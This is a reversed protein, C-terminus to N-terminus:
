PIYWIFNSLFEHNVLLFPLFSYLALAQGPTSSSSADVANNVWAVACTVCSFYLMYSFPHVSPTVQAAGQSFGAATLEFYCGFGHADDRMILM